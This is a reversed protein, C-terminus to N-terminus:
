LSTAFQGEGVRMFHPSSPLAQHHESVRAQSVGLAAGVVIAAVVFARLAYRRHTPNRLEFRKRMGGGRRRRPQAGARNGGRGGVARNGRKLRGYSPRAGEPTRAVDGGALPDPDEELLVRIQRHMRLATKYSVGLERELARATLRDGSTRVLDIARFWL